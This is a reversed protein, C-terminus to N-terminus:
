TQRYTNPYLGRGIPQVLERTFISALENAINYIGTVAAQAQGGVLLVDFKNTLFRASNFPIITVAFRIYEDIYKM